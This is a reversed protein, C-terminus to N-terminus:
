FDEADLQHLLLLWVMLEVHQYRRADHGGHGGISSQRICCVVLLEFQFKLLPVRNHAVFCLAHGQGVIIFDFEQGRSDRVALRDM